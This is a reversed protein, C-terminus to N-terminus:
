SFSKNFSLTNGPKGWIQTTLHEVIKLFDKKKKKRKKLRDVM